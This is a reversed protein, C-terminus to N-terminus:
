EAFAAGLGEAAASPPYYLTRARADDRQVALVERTAAWELADARADPPADLRDAIFADRAGARRRRRAGLAM